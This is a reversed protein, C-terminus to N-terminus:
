IEGHRNLTHIVFLKIDFELRAWMKRREEPDNTLAVPVGHSALIRDIIDQDQKHLREVEPNDPIFYEM